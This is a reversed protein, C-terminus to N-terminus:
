NVIIKKFISVDGTLQLVYVGKSLKSVDITLQDSKYNKYNFVLVGTSSKLSIDFKKEKVMTLDVTTIGHTPNPLVTVLNNDSVLQEMQLRKTDPPTPPGNSISLLTFSPSFNTCGSPDTVRVKYIGPVSVNITASNANLMASGNRYWNFTNASNSTAHVPLYNGTFNTLLGAPSITVLPLGSVVVEVSDSTAMCSVSDVIQLQYYGSDLVYVSTATAGTIVNGNQFWQYTNGQVFQTSLQISDGQCITNIGIPSITSVPNSQLLTYPQSSGSCGLSDTITVSYVGATNAYYITDNAGSIETGNLFWKITGATTSAQLLLSDNICFTTASSNIYIQPTDLLNVIVTDSMAACGVSDIIFVSYVGSDSVIISNTVAGSIVISDKIWQYANGPANVAAITTSDGNCLHIIGTSNLSVDPKSKKINVTDSTATCGWQNFIIASYEGADSVYIVSDSAATIALGNKFWQVSDGANKNIQILLSDNNCITTDTTISLVPVPYNQVSIYISDCAISGCSDSIQLYYTKSVTPTVTVYKTTAILTGNCSDTRWRYLGSQSLISGIPNITVSQGLCITNNVATSNLGTPPKSCQPSPCTLFFNNCCTGSYSGYFSLYYKQGAQLPGFNGNWTTTNNGSAICNWNKENCGLSADKYFIHITETSTAGSGIHTLNYTGTTDPIFQFIKETNTGSGGCGGLIWSTYISSSFGQTIYKNDCYLFSASDCNRATRVKHVTNVYSYSTGCHQKLYFDYGSFNSLNSITIPKSANFITTGAGPTFGSPGYIIDINNLPSTWNVRVSTPTISDFVVGKVEPVSLQFINATGPLSASGFTNYEVLIDYTKNSDLTIDCSYYPGSSNILYVSNWGSTSCIAVHEKYAVCLYGANSTWQWSFTYTTHCPSYVQFIQEQGTTSGCPLYNSWIGVTDFLIPGYEPQNIYIYTIFPCVLMKNVGKLSDTNSNVTTQSVGIQSFSKLILFNLLLILLLKRKM